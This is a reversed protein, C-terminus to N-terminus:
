KSNEKLFKCFANKGIKLFTIIFSTIFSAVVGYELNSKSTVVAGTLSAILANVDGGVMKRQEEYTKSDSCLFEWFETMMIKTFEHSEEKKELYEKAHAKMRKELEDGVGAYIPLPNILWSFFM